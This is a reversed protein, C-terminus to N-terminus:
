RCCLRGSAVGEGAGSPTLAANDGGGTSSTAILLSDNFGTSIRGLLAARVGLLDTVGRRRTKGSRRTPFARTSDAFICAPTISDLEELTILADMLNAALLAACTSLTIIGTCSLAGSRGNFIKSRSVLPTSRVM